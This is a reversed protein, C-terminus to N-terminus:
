LSELVLRPSDAQRRLGALPADGFVLGPDLLELFLPLTGLTRGVGLLQFDLADLRLDGPHVLLEVGDLGLAACEKLWSMQDMKGAGITRHYSWSSCSTKM